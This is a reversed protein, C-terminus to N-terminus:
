ESGINVCKKDNRWKVGGKEVRFQRQNSCLSGTILSTSILFQVGREQDNDGQYYFSDLGVLLKVLVRLEPLKVVERNLKVMVRVM